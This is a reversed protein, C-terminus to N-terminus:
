PERESEGSELRSDAVSRAAKSGLAFGILVVLALLLIGAAMGFRLIM